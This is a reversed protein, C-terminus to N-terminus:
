STTTETELWTKQNHIIAGSRLATTGVKVDDSQEFWKADGGTTFTLGTSDLATNFSAHAALGLAVAIALFPRKM